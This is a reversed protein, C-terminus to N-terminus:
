EELKGFCLYNQITEGSTEPAVYEWQTPNYSIRTVTEGKFWSVQLARVRSERCDFETLHREGDDGDQDPESFFIRLWARKFGNPMTRITERDVYFIKGNNAEGVFM